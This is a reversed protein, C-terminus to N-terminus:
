LQKEHVFIYKLIAAKLVNSLASTTLALRKALMQQDFQENYIGLALLEKLIIEQSARWDSKIAESSAILTNVINVQNEDDFSVAIQTNGYDNKKIFITLPKEPMGTHQVM